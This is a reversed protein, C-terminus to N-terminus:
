NFYEFEFDCLRVIDGDQAGMAELRDDVGLKRLHTILRMMGEDTSINTMM